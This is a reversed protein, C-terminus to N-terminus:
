ETLLRLRHFGNTEINRKLVEGNFLLRLTRGTFFPADGVSRGSGALERGHLVCVTHGAKGAMSEVSDWDLDPQGIIWHFLYGYSVPVKPQPPTPTVYKAWGTWSWGGSDTWRDDPCVLIDASSVYTPYLRALLPPRTGEHDDRYMRFAMGVQRLQSVCRAERGKARSAALVPLLLGALAAVIAIVVLVEVLTFGNKTKNYM